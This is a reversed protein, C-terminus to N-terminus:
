TTRHAEPRNPVAFAFGDRIVELLAGVVDADFLVGSGNRLVEVAKTIGPAGRYPRDHAMAEFTDAVAIIRAELIVEDGRLGRPYGSGDLREHHQLIMEAIPWPWPFRGAIQHGTAPHHRLADWQEPTLRGPTTLTEHSIAIKGLDHISAGLVLGRLRDEDLGLRRGIAECLQGVQSQHGATWPDRSEVAAALVYVSSSLAESLRASDRLRALGYGLDAALDDFLTEALHDFTDPEAAYVMLAGDIMGDVLVPLAISCRFGHARAQEIWPAYHSETLFDSSIQPLGTRLARGTPGTGLPGDGWSISVQDLYGAGLGAHAVPAVTQDADHVPRGYWAFTYEGADVVTQCMERLLTHEDTARVLVGNGRSLTTLARLVSAKEHTRLAIISGVVAGHLDVLPRARVLCERYAGASTRFRCPIDDHSRGAYVEQRLRGVEVDDDPHVLSRAVVGGLDAPAYGLLLTVNDSVWQITGDVTTQYVVDSSSDAILRFRQWSEDDIEV